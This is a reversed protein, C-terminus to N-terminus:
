ISTLSVSQLFDTSLPPSCKIRRNKNHYNSTQGARELEKWVAQLYLMTRQEKKDGKVRPAPGEQQPAPAGGRVGGGVGVPRRFSLDTQYDAYM